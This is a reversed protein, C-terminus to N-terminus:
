KKRALAAFADPIELRQNDTAMWPRGPLASWGALELNLTNLQQTMTQRDFGLWRHALIDRLWTREHREFDIILLYGGPKIAKVAEAIAADPDELHHLIMVMTVLDAEEPHLPPKHADGTRFEVNTLGLAEVKLKALDMMALNQDIAIVKKPRDGLLELLYGTGTGIDAVIQNEPFFLKLLHRPIMDGFLQDRISDWDGALEDFLNPNSSKRHLLITHLRASDASYHNDEQLQASCSEWVSRVPDHLREEELRYYRWSGDRREQILEEERLLKLHNSIRSQSLQTAAALEMVSLEHTALLRLLRLRTPDGLLKFLRTLAAVAM